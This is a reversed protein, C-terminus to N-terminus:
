FDYQDVNEKTFDVPEGMIVMDGKTRIKGVGEIDQRDSPPNGNLLNVAVSVTLYGLKKPSWLTIVQASGDKLYENMSNPSSLGVVAVKGSKGTEKVARAIAPPGVSSGGIIGKINPYAHLIKKAEVYAKQPDDDSEAIKVLKMNPYNEKQQVQIWNMWENLNSASKSGTIIAYSGEEMSNWALTDMLHRGLTEPDVMNVFFERGRQEVDSDWTIVKIGEQQAELLIPILTVPDNASVALVDVKDAILEEIIKIQQTSDAVPPGSFIVEVGLKKGAEKAGEEVATFYPINVLKPVIGIKYQNKESGEKKTNWTEKVYILKYEKQKCGSVVILPIILFLLFWKRM